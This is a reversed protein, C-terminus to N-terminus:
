KPRPQGFIVSRVWLFPKDPEDVSLTLTAGSIDQELTITGVRLIRFADEGGTTDTPRLVRSVTQGAVTCTITRPADLPASARVVLIDYTGAPATVDNWQASGLLIAKSPADKTLATGNGSNVVANGALLTVANSGM